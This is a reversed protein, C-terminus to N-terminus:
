RGGGFAKLAALGRGTVRYLRRPLPGPGKEGRRSEVWGKGEMRRLCSVANSVPIKVQKAIQYPWSEGNAYLFELIKISLTPPRM